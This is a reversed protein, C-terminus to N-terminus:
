KTLIAKIACIRLFDDINGDNDKMRASHYLIVDLARGM